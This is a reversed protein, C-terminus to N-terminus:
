RRPTAGESAIGAPSGSPAAMSESLTRGEALGRPRQVANLRFPVQVGETLIRRTCLKVYGPKLLQLHPAERGLAELSCNLWAIAPAGSTSDASRCGQWKKTTKKTAAICRGHAVKTSSPRCVLQMAGAPDTM